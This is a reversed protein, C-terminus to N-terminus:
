SAVSAAYKRVELAFYSERPRAWEEFTLLRINIGDECWKGTKSPLDLYERQYDQQTPMSASTLRAVEAEAAQESDMWGLIEEHLDDLDQVILFVSPLTPPTDRLDINTTM